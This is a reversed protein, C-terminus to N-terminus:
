KKRTTTKKESTALVNKSEANKAAAEQLSIPKKNSQRVEDKVLHQLPNTTAQVFRNPKGSKEVAAIVKKIQLAINPGVAGSLNSLIASAKVLADKEETTM